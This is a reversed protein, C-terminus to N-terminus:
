RCSPCEHGTLDEDFMGEDIWFKMQEQYLKSPNTHQATAICKVRHYEVESLIIEVTHLPM